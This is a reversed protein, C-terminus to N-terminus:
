EAGAKRKALPRPRPLEAEELPPARPPGLTARLEKIADEVGSLAFDVGRLYDEDSFGKFFTGLPLDCALALRLVHKASPETKGTEWRSIEGHDKLGLAKALEPQTLELMDRRVSRIVEGIGDVAELNPMGKEGM